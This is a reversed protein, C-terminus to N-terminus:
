VHESDNGVEFVPVINTHHMRAAAKAERQFRPLSRGDGALQRPLVKLAVRRQLSLQEAEYVVGMGGRGIECLIRYDGVQDLRQGDVRVSGGLTGSEDQSGPKLDEVMMMAEFVDRIETALEPHRQCYEEVTPKEGNQHRDLFEELLQDVGSLGDSSNM